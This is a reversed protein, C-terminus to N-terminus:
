KKHCKKNELLLHLIEKTIKHDYIVIRATMAFKPINEM